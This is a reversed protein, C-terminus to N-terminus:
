QHTGCNISINDLSYMKSSQCFIRAKYLQRIKWDLSREAKLYVFLVIKRTRHFESKASEDKFKIVDKETCM